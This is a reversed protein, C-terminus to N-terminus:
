HFDLHVFLHKKVCVTSRKADHLVVNLRNYCDNQLGLYLLLAVSQGPWLHNLKNFCNDTKDTNFISQDPVAALWTEKAHASEVRDSYSQYIPPKSLNQTSLLNTGGLLPAASMFFHGLKQTVWSWKPVFTRRCLRFSYTKQLLFITSSM